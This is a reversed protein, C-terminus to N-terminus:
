ERIGTECDFYYIKKIEHLGNMKDGPDNGASCMFFDPNIREGSLKKFSLITARLNAPASSKM